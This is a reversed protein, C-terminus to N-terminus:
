IIDVCVSVCVCVNIYIYIYIYIYIHGEETSGTKKGPPETCENFILIKCFDLLCYTLTRPM